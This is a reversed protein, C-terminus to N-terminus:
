NNTPLTVTLSENGGDFCCSTGCAKGPAPCPGHWINIDDGLHTGAHNDAFTTRSITVNSSFPDQMSLSSLRLAGGSCGAHNGRFASDAIVGTAGHPFYIAGGGGAGSCGNTAACGDFLCGYFEAVGGVKVAGGFNTSALRLFSVGTAVLRGGGQVRAAAGEPDADTVPYVAQDRITVASLLLTGSVEFRAWLRPFVYPQLATLPTKSLGGAIALAQTPKVTANGASAQM